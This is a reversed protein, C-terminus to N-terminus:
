GTLLATSTSKIILLKYLLALFINSILIYRHYNKLNPCLHSAQTYIGVVNKDSRNKLEFYINIKKLQEMCGGRLEM